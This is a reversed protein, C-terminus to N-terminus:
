NREVLYVEGYSRVVYVLTMGNVVMGVEYDYEATGITGDYIITDGYAVDNLNSLTLKIKNM